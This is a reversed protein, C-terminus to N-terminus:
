CADGTDFRVTILSQRSAVDARTISTDIDVYPEFVLRENTLDFLEVFYYITFNISNDM